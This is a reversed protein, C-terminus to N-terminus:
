LVYLGKTKRAEGKLFKSGVVRRRRRKERRKRSQQGEGEKKEKEWGEGM